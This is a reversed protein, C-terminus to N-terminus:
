SIARIPNRWSSELKRIIKRRELGELYVMTKKKSASTIMQGKQVVRKGLVADIKCKAVDCYKAIKRKNDFVEPLVETLM